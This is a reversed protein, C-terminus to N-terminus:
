NCMIWWSNFTFCSYFYGHNFINFAQVDSSKEEKRCDKFHLVDQPPCPLKGSNWPTYFVCYNLIGNYAEVVDEYTFNEGTYANLNEVINMPKICLTHIFRCLIPLAISFSIIFLFLAVGFLINLLVYKKM